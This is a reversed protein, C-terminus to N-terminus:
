TGNKKAAAGIVNNMVKGELKELKTKVDALLKTKSQLQFVRDARKNNAEQLCYSRIM